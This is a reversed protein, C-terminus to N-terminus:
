LLRTELAADAGHAIVQAHGPTVQWSGSAPAPAALSCGQNTQQLCGTEQSQDPHGPLDIAVRLVAGAEEQQQHGGEGQHGVPQGAYPSGAQIHHYMPM